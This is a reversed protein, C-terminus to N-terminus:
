APSGLGGPVPRWDTQPVSRWDANAQAEQASQSRSVHAWASWVTELSPGGAEAPVFVSVQRRDAAPTNAAPSWTVPGTRWATDFNYIQVHPLGLAVAIHSLGSDVGIAGDCAALQQALSRVDMRPWVVAYDSSNRKAM